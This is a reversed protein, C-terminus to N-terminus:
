LRDRVIRHGRGLEVHLKAAWAIRVDKDAGMMQQGLILGTMDALGDGHHDRFGELLRLGRGLLHEDVVLHQGPNGVRRLGRLRVSRPEPVFQDVIDQDVRDESVVGRRIRGEGLRTM